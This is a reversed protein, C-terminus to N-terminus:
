AEDCAAMNDRLFEKIAVMSIQELIRIVAHNESDGILM